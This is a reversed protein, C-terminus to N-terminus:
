SNYPDIIVNPVEIKGKSFLVYPLFYLPLFLQIFFLERKRPFLILEMLSLIFFIIATTKIRNLNNGRKWKLFVIHAIIPIALLVFMHIEWTGLYRDKLWAEFLLM